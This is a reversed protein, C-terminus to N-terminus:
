PKLNPAPTQSEPQPHCVEDARAELLRALSLLGEGSRPDEAGLGLGAARSGAEPGLHSIRFEESGRPLLGGDVAPRSAPKGFFPQRVGRVSPPGHFSAVSTGAVETPMSAGLAVADGWNAVQPRPKYKAYGSVGSSSGGGPDGSDPDPSASRCAPPNREPMVSTSTSPRSLLPITTSIHSTASLPPPSPTGLLATPSEERHSSGGRLSTDLGLPSQAGARSFEQHHPSALHPYFLGGPPPPSLSILYM